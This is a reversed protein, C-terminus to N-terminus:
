SWPTSLYNLVLKSSAQSHSNQDFRQAVCQGLIIKFYAIRAAKLVMRITGQEKPALYPALSVKTTLQNCTGCKECKDGNPEM